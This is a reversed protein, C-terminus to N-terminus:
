QEPLGDMQIVNFKVIFAATHRARREREGTM